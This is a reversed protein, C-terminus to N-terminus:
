QPVLICLADIAM